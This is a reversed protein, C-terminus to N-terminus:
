LIEKGAGWKKMAERELERTTRNGTALAYSRRALDCLPCLCASPISESDIGVKLEIHFSWLHQAIITLALKAMEEHLREIEDVLTHTLPLKAISRIERLRDPTIRETM